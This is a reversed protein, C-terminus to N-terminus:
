LDASKIGICDGQYFDQGQTVWDDKGLRRGICVQQEEVKAATLIVVAM